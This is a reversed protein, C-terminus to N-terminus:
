KDVWLSELYVGMNLLQIKKLFYTSEPFRANQGNPSKLINERDKTDFYMNIKRIFEEALSLNKKTLSYLDAANTQELLAQWISTISSGILNKLHSDLEGIINIASFYDSLEKLTDKIAQSEQQRSFNYHISFTPIVTLGDKSKSLTKTSHMSRLNGRSPESMSNSLPHPHKQDVLGWYFHSSNLNILHLVQEGHNIFHFGPLLVRREKKKNIVIVASTNDVLISGLGPKNKINFYDKDFKGSQIHFTSPAQQILGLLVANLINLLKGNNNHLSPVFNIWFIFSAFISLLLFLSYLIKNPLSKIFALPIGCLLVILFLRRQYKSFSKTSKLFSNM